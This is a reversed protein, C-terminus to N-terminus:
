VAGWICGPRKQAPQGAADEASDAKMAAATEGNVRGALALM